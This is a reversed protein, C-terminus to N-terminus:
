TVNGENRLKLQGVSEILVLAVAAGSASPFLPTPVADALPTVLLDPGDVHRTILSDSALAMARTRDETRWACTGSLPLVLAFSGTPILTTERLPVVRSRFRGRAAMTNLAIVPGGRLTAQWDIGGDYEVARGPELMVHNGTHRLDVGPGQVVLSLRDMDPFRSYPGDREVEALSIRWAGDAGEALPRTRGGGNRWPQLAYSALPRITLGTPVRGEPFPALAM